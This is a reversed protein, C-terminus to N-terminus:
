RSARATTSSRARAIAREVPERLGDPISVVPGGAPEIGRHRAVEGEKGGDEAALVRELAEAIPVNAGM